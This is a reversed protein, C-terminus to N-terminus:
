KINKQLIEHIYRSMYQLQQFGLHASTVKRLKCQARSPHSPPPASWAHVLESCACRHKHVQRRSPNRPPFCVTPSAPHHPRHATCASAAPHSSGGTSVGAQPVRGAPARVSGGARPAKRSTISATLRAAFGRNTKNPIELWSKNSLNM